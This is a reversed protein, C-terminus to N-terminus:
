IVSFILQVKLSDNFGVNFYWMGKEPFNYKVDYIGPEGSPEIDTTGKITKGKVQATTELKVNNVKVPEGSKIDHFEIVFSGEGLKFDRQSNYVVVIYDGAAVQQLPILQPEVTQNTTKTKDSNNQEGCSVFLVALIIATIKFLSEM